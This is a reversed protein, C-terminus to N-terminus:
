LKTKNNNIPLIFVIFYLSAGSLFSKLLFRFEKGVLNEIIATGAIYLIVAALFAIIRISPKRNILKEINLKKCLFDILLYSLFCAAFGLFLSNM